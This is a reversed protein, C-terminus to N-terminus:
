ERPSPLHTVAVLHWWQPWDRPHIMFMYRPEGKDRDKRHKRIFNPCILLLVAENYGILCSTQKPWSAISGSFYLVSQGYKRSVVYYRLKNYKHKSCCPEGTSRVGSPAMPSAFPVNAHARSKPTCLPPYATSHMSRARGCRHKKRVYYPGTATPEHPLALKVTPFIAPM